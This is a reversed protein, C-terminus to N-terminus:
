KDDIGLYRERTVILELTERDRRYETFGAALHARVAASRTDEFDNHIAEIGMEDFAHELLLRLAEVAYGKGRHKAEIVIGMEHWPADGNRHVNVEGIFTGDQRRVIYAYYRAPQQGIFWDYWEQWESEPFDICGTDPHYGPFSLEYGRNYSMTDPDSMIRQRYWLEDFSPIHLYLRCATNDGQQSRLKM